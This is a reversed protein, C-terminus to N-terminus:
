GIKWGFKRVKGILSGAVARVRFVHKGGDLNKYKKPSKCGQFSKKDLKCEFDAERNPSNFGFKAKHKGTRKGPTKRLTIDPGRLCALKPAVLVDTPDLEARGAIAGCHWKDPEGDKLEFVDEQGCDDYVTDEGPGGINVDAVTFPCDTSFPEEVLADNGAGGDRVDGVLGGFDATNYLTDAGGEGFLKDAGSDGYLDDDGEGGSITDDSSSTRIEDNGDGGSFSGGDGGTDTLEDNGGGGAVTDIGGYSRILDNGSSGAIDDNSDTLATEVRLGPETATGPPPPGNYRFTNPANDPTFVPPFALDARIRNM